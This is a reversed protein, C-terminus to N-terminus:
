SFNGWFQWPLRWWVSERKTTHFGLRVRFFVYFCSYTRGGLFFVGWLFFTCEMETTKAGFFIPRREGRRRRNKCRVCRHRLSKSWWRSMNWRQCRFVASPSTMLHFIVYLRQLLRWFAIFEATLKIYHLQKLWSYYSSTKSIIVLYAPFVQFGPVEEIREQVLTHPVEVIRENVEANLTDFRNWGYFGNHSLNSCFFVVALCEQFGARFEFM